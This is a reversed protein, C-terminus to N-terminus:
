LAATTPRSDPAYLMTWFRALREALTRKLPMGPEISVLAFPAKLTSVLAPGSQLTLADGAKLVFDERCREQTVWLAGSEVRLTLGCPNDIRVIQQATLGISSLQRFDATNRYADM